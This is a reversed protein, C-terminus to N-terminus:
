KVVKAYRKLPYGLRKFLIRLRDQGECEIIHGGQVALIELDYLLREAGDWLEDFDLTSLHPMRPFPM